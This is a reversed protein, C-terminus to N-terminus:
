TYRGAGSSGPSSAGVVIQGAPGVTVHPYHLEARVAELDASNWAELFRALWAEAAVTYEDPM